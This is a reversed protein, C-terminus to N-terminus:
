YCGTEHRRRQRHRRHHYLGNQRRPQRHRHRRRLRKISQDSRKPLPPCMMGEIKMTKKMTCVGEYNINASTERSVNADSLTSAPQDETLALVQYDADIIAQKLADDSVTGDTIIYAANDELSVTATVGELSNLAKTVANQCHSCM